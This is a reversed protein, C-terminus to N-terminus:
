NTRERPDVHEQCRACPCARPGTYLIETDLQYVDGHVPANNMFRAGTWSRFLRYDVIEREAHVPEDLKAPVTILEVEYVNPDKFM